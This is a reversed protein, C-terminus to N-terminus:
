NRLSENFTFDPEDCTCMHKRPHALHDLKQINLVIKSKFQLFNQCKIKVNNLFFYLSPFVFLFLCGTNSTKYQTFPM